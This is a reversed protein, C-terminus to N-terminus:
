GNLTVDEGVWATSELWAETYGLWNMGDVEEGTFDGIYRKGVSREAFQLTSQARADGANVYPAGGVGSQSPDLRHLEPVFTLLKSAAGYPDGIMNEAKMVLVNAGAARLLNVEREIIALLARWEAM